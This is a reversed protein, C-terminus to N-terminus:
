DQEGPLYLADRGLHELSLDASWPLLLPADPIM